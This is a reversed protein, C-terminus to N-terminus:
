EYKKVESNEYVLNGFLKRLISFKNIIKKLVNFNMPILLINNNNKLGLQKILKSTNKYEDDQPLVVGEAKFKIYEYMMESLKNVSLMSRQNDIYPFFKIKKSLKNLKEYNGPCNNGYILPPRLILVKFDQDSLKTILEEAILKSVGYPTNPSPLTDKNIIYKKTVDGDTGYVAMTSFFIFHPVGEKKAKIALKESLLANFKKYEEFSYNGHSQHVIAALHIISDYQSFDEKEWKETRLSINSIEFESPYKEELWKKIAKGVYSNSGTILIKKM